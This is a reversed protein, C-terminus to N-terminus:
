WITFSPGKNNLTVVKGEQITLKVDDPDKMGKNSFLASSKKDPKEKEPKEDDSCGSIMVCSLIVMLTLCLLKFIRGM